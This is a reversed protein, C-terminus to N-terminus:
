LCATLLAAGEALVNVEREAETLCKRWREVDHALNMLLPADSVAAVSACASRLEAMPMGHEALKGHTDPSFAGRLNRVRSIHQALAPALVLPRSRVRM